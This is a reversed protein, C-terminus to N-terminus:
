PRRQLHFEPQVIHPQTGRTYDRGAVRLNAVPNL